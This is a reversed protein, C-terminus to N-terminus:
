LANQAEFVSDALNQHEELDFPKSIPSTRRQPQRPLKSHPLIDPKSLSPNAHVQKGKKLDYFYTKFTSFTCTLKGSEILYEYVSELTATKKMEIISPLLGLIQNKINLKLEPM